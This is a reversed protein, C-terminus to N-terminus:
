HALFTAPSIGPPRRSHRSIGSPAPHRTRRTPRSPLARFPAARRPSTLLPRLLPPISHRRSPSFAFGLTLVNTSTPTAKVAALGTLPRPPLTRPHLGLVDAWLAAAGRRRIAGGSVGGFRAQPLLEQVAPIEGLRESTDLLVGTGSADVSHAGLLQPAPKM